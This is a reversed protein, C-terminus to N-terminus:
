KTGIIGHAVGDETLVLKLSRWKFAQLEDDKQKLAREMGAARQQAEEERGRRAHAHTRAHMCTHTRAHRAETEKEMRAQNEADKKEQLARQASM